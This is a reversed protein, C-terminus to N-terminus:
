DVLKDLLDQLDNAAKAYSSIADVILTSNEGKANRTLSEHAAALKEIAQRTKQTREDLAERQQRNRSMEMALKPQLVNRIAVPPCSPDDCVMSSYGNRLRTYQRDLITKLNASAEGLEDDMIKAIEQVQGDAQKAIESVKAGIKADVLLQALKGILGGWTDAKDAGSQKLSEGLGSLSEASSKASGIIALSSLGESYKELAALLLWRAETDEHGAYELQDKMQASTPNTVGSAAAALYRQGGDYMEYLSKAGPLAKQTAKHFEVAASKHLSAACGNLILSLSLLVPALRVGVTEGEGFVEIRM